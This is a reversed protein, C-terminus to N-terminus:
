NPVLHCDENCNRHATDEAPPGQGVHVQVRNWVQALRLDDLKREDEAKAYYAANLFHLVWDTSNKAAISSGVMGAFQAIAPGRDPQAASEEPTTATGADTSKSM